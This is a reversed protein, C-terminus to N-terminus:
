IMQECIDHNTNRLWIEFQFEFVNENKKNQIQILWQIVDCAYKLQKLLKKM